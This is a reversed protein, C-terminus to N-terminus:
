FIEDIEKLKSLDKRAERSLTFALDDLLINNLLSIEEYVAKFLVSLSDQDVIASEYNLNFKNFKSVEVSYKDDSFYRIVFKTFADNPLLVSFNVGGNHGYTSNSKEIPTLDTIYADLGAVEKIIKNIKNFGVGNM